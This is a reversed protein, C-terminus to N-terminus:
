STCPVSWAMRDITPPCSLSQLATLLVGESANDRSFGAKSKVFSFILVNNLGKPSIRFSESCAAHSIRNQTQGRRNSMAM